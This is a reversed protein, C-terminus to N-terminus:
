STIGSKIVDYCAAFAARDFHRGLLAPFADLLAHGFDNFYEATVGERAKHQGNLHALQANLTAEDDLLSICMDLGGLVRVIHARFIASNINVGGVRSFLSSRTEPHEHFFNSFAAEGLKERNLGLGYAEAWQTKVKLRELTGCPATIRATSVGVLALLVALVAKM